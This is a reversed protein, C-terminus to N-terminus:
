KHGGIKEERACSKGCTKRTLTEGCNTYYHPGDSYFRYVKCGENEFLLQVPIEPNNTNYTLIEKKVCGSVLLIMLLYKKM